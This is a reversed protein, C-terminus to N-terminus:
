EPAPQLYVFRDALDDTALARVAAAIKPIGSRRRSFRSSLVVLVGPHHRGTILREAALRTFDAINETLLVHGDAAAAALVDSDSRGGLGLEVVTSAEVGDRRLAEALGEPYTEDLLIRM